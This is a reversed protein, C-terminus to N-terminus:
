NFVITATLVQYMVTRAKAACTVATAVVAQIMQVENFSLTEQFAFQYLDFVIEEVCSRSLINLAYVITLLFAQRLYYYYMFCDYLWELFVMWLWIEGVFRNYKM